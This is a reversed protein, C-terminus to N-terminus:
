SVGSSLSLEGASFRGTGRAQGLGNKACGRRCSGNYTHGHETGKRLYLLLSVPAQTGMGESSDCGARPRVSM